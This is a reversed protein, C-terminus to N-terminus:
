LHPAADDPRVAIKQPTGRVMGFWLLGDVRRRAAGVKTSEKRRALGAPIRYLLPIVSEACAQREDCLAAWEDKTARILENRRRATKTYKKELHAWTNSLRHLQTKEADPFLLDHARALNQPLLWLFPSSMKRFEGFAMKLALAAEFNNMKLLDRCLKVLFKVVRCRADINEEALVRDVAWGQFDEHRKLLLDWGPSPRNMAKEMLDRPRVAAFAKWFWLTVQRAVEEHPFTMLREDTMLQSGLKINMVPSAYDSAHKIGHLEELKTLPDAQAWADAAQLVLRVLNKEAAGKIGKLFDVLPKRLRDNAFDDGNTLLWQRLYALVRTRILPSDQDDGDEHQKYRLMLLELLENTSAFGPYCLLVTTSLETDIYRSYTAREVLSNLTAAMVRKHPTGGAQDSELYIIESGGGPTPPTTPSLPAGADASDDFSAGEDGDLAIVLERELDDDEAQQLRAEAVQARQRIALKGAHQTVETVRLCFKDAATVMDDNFALASSVAPLQRLREQFAEFDRIFDQLERAYAVYDEDDDASKICVLINYISEILRTIDGLDMISVRDSGLKRRLVRLSGLSTDARRLLKHNGHAALALESSSNWSTEFSDGAAERSSLGAWPNSGTAADPGKRQSSSLRDEEDESDSSHDTYTGHGGRNSAHRGPLAYGHSVLNEAEITDDTSSEHSINAAAGGQLNLMRAAAAASEAGNYSGIATQRQLPRSYVSQITTDTAEFPNQKVDLKEILANVDLAAWTGADSQCTRLLYGLRALTHLCYALHMPIIDAHLSPTGSCMFNEFFDHLALVTLGLVRCKQLLEEFTAGQRMIASNVAHLVHRVLRTVFSFFPISTEYAAVMNKQHVATVIPCGNADAGRAIVALLSRLQDDNATSCLGMQAYLAWSALLSYNCAVELDRAFAQFLSDVDGEAVRLADCKGLAAKIPRSAGSCM